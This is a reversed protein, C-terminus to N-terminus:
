PGLPTATVPIGAWAAEILKRHEQDAWAVLAAVVDTHPRHCEVVLVTPQKRLVAVFRDGLRDLAVVDLLGQGTNNGTEDHVVAAVTEFDSMGTYGFHVPSKMYDLSNLVFYISYYLLNQMQPFEICEGYVFAVAVCTATRSGAVVASGHQRFVTVMKEVAVAHFSLIQFVLLVTTTLHSAHDGAVGIEFRRM